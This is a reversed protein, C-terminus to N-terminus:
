CACCGRFLAAGGTLLRRNPAPQPATGPVAAVKAPTVTAPTALRQAVGALFAALRPDKANGKWGIPDVSQRIEFMVPRQCVEIMVPVLAGRQLAVTAESRVWDFGVSAGSWLVVVLLAERLATETVKDYVAGAKLAQDRQINHGTATLAAAM